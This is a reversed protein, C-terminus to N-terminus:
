FRVLGTIGIQNELQILQNFFSELDQLRGFLRNEEANLTESDRPRTSVNLGCSGYRLWM